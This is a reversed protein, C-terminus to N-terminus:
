SAETLFYLCEILAYTPLLVLTQGDRSRQAFISSETHLLYDRLVITIWLHLFLLFLFVLLYRSESVVGDVALGIVSTVLCPPLVLNSM